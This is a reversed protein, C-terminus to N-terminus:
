PSYILWEINRATNMNEMDRNLPLSVSHFATEFPEDCGSLTENEKVYKITNTVVKDLGTAKEVAAMMMGIMVTGSNKGENDAIRKMETEDNMDAITALKGTKPHMFSLGDKVNAVTVTKSFSDSLLLEDFGDSRVCQGVDQKEAKQYAVRATQLAKVIKAASDPKSIVSAMTSRAADAMALCLPYDEKEYKKLSSKIQNRFEYKSALDARLIYSSMMIYYQDAEKGDLIEGLNTLCETAGIFNLSMFDKKSTELAHAKATGLLSALVLSLASLSLKKM